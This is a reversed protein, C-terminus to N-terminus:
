LVDRSAGGSVGTALASFARLPLRLLSGAVQTTPGVARREGRRYRGRAILPSAGGSAACEGAAPSELSAAAAIWTPGALRALPAPPPSGLRRLSEMEDSLETDDSAVSSERPADSAECEADAAAAGDMPIALEAAAGEEEEEDEDEAAAAAAAAAEATAAGLEVEGAALTALLWPAVAADAGGSPVNSCGSGGEDLCM